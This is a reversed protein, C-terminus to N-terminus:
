NEEPLGAFYYIDGHGGQTASFLSHDTVFDYYEKNKEFAKHVAAMPTTGYYHGLFKKDCRVEFKKTM